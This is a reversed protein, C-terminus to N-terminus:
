MACHALQQLEERGACVCVCVCAACWKDGQPFILFINLITIFVLMSHTCLVVTLVSCKKQILEAGDGHGCKVPHHTNSALRPLFYFLERHSPALIPHLLPFLLVLSPSATTKISQKPFM